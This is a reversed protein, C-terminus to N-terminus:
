KAAVRARNRQGIIELWNGLFAPTELIAGTHIVFLGFALVITIAVYPLSLTWPTAVGFINSIVGVIRLLAAWGIVYVISLV